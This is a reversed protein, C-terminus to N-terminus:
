HPVGDCTISLKERNFGQEEDSEQWGTGPFKFSPKLAFFSADKFYLHDHYDYESYPIFSVDLKDLDYGRYTANKFNVYYHIVERDDQVMQISKVVNRYKAPINSLPKVYYSDSHAVFTNKFDEFRKKSPNNTPNYNDDFGCNDEFFQFLGVLDQKGTSAKVATKISKSSKNVNAYSQSSM